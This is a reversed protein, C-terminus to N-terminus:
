STAAGAHRITEPDTLFATASAPERALAFLLPDDEFWWSGPGAVGLGFVLGAWVLAILAVGKV